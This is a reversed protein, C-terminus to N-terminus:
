QGVHAPPSPFGDFAVSSPPQVCPRSNVRPASPAEITTLREGSLPLAGVETRYAHLMTLQQSMFSGSVYTVFGHPGADHGMIDLELRGAFGKRAFITSMFHSHM